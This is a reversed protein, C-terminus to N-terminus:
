QRGIRLKFASDRRICHIGPQVEFIPISHLDLTPLSDGTAPYAGPWTGPSASCPTRRLRVDYLLYFAAGM